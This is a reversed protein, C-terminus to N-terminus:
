GLKTPPMLAAVIQLLTGIILMVLGVWGCIAYIQDLMAAGADTQELVLSIRGGTTMRFPMGWRFLILVGIMNLALGVINLIRGYDDSV